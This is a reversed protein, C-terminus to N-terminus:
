HRIVYWGSSNMIYACTKPLREVLTEKWRNWREDDSPYIQRNRKRTRTGNRTIRLLLKQERQCKCNRKMTEDKKKSKREKKETYFVLSALKMTSKELCCRSEAPCLGLRKKEGLGNWSLNLAVLSRQRCVYSEKWVGQEVTELEQALMNAPSLQQWIIPM